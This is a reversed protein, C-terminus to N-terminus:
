YPRTPESIHILSLSIDAPHPLTHLVKTEINYLVARSAYTETIAIWKSNPSVKTQNTLNNFSLIKTGQTGDHLTTLQDAPILEYLAPNWEPKPHPQWALTHTGAKIPATWPKLKADRWTGCIRAVAFNYDRRAGANAPDRALKRWPGEAARTNHDLADFTPGPTAAGRPTATKWANPRPYPSGPRPPPAPSRPRQATAGDKFGGPRTGPPPVM